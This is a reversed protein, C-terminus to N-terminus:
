AVAEGAKAPPAAKNEFFAALAGLPADDDFLSDGSICGLRRYSEFQQEDFWQDATSQQPFDDNDFGYQLVDASVGRARNPKVVILRGTREDEPLGLSEAHVHSYRITGVAYHRTPVEALLCSLDIDIEAQFDIRVKRVLDGIDAFSPRPDAGCDGILIYRCGRQILSYAGTNDFHGGDTLYSFPQLDTTQSLLEQITYVPWLRASGARWYGRNPTPAWFGLRVNFLTLLMALAASPTQSGMNPSAAAGSVAVATGLSVTGCSYERTPRYGTRMSGCYRKSMVFFDSVRQVTALDSGGVLNLTTNVLHYPAGHSTNRLGVLPVDDGPVSETIEADHADRRADNSAGMYARVLRAKYFAHITLTNPDALWGLALVWGMVTSICGFMAMARWAYETPSFAALALLVFMFFGIAMLSFSRANSGEGWVLEYLLLAVSLLIGILILYPLLSIPAAELDQGYDRWDIFFWVAMGLAGSVAVAKWNRKGVPGRFALALLIFVTAGVAIAFVNERVRELPIAYVGVALALWTGVLLLMRKPSRPRFEYLALSLFLFASIVTAITIYRIEGNADEYVATYWRHGIWALWLGLVLLMLPPVVAFIFRDVINPKSKKGEDGGSPSAKLATYASGLASFVIAGWGGAKLVKAGVLKHFGADYLLFDIVEHGFGAFLLIVASFVSWQLLQTHRAAIHNRWFDIDTIRAHFTRRHRIGMATFVVIFFAAIALLTWRIAPPPMSQTAELVIVTLLTFAIATLVYVIVDRLKWCKRTALMWAIVCVVVGVLLVASPIMAVLLRRQLRERWTSQTEEKEMENADARVETEQAKEMAANPADVSSAVTQVNVEGTGRDDIRYEFENETMFAFYAQGAMIAALVLPVLVLWTLVLNRGITSIARWTDSSLAGKRPTLFNSFLRLHHIPDVAANMASDSKGKRDRTADVQQARLADQYREEHREPEVREDPPFFDHERRSARSLWASWWGGCYGGGSVTSLYDFQQLLGRKQLAQLLGLNFTASRIGGGSLSIGALDRPRGSTPPTGDAVFRREHVDAYEAAVVNGFPEAVSFDLEDCRDDCEHQGALVDEGDVM